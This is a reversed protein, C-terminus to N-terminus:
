YRVFSASTFVERVLKKMNFNGDSLSKGLQAALEPTLTAQDVVIDGRSLAWNWVRTALCRPLEPDAAIRDGLAKLDAAPQGYRWATTEGAPLWDSLETFPTGPVPTRVAFNTTPRGAEDFKALLPAMHNITSHCNACILSKDDLFDVKAKAGGSISAFPWPSYYTGGPHQESRGTEAPFKGCLFTEQVFRTRRFAMSSYYQAQVGPDTLVGVAPIGNNCSGSPFQGTAPDFGPCTDQTATVIQTFPREKVVLMAAFNPAAEMNVNVTSGGVAVPVTGGMKFTDRWFAVQEVAFSPRALYDDIRKAYTTAPDASGSLEKIEALSPYNGTLKMAATRLALGYDVAPDVLAAKDNDRVGPSIGERFGSPPSVDREGQEAGGSCGALAAGTLLAVTWTRNTERRM